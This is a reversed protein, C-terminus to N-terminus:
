FLDDVKQPFFLACGSFFRARGSFIQSFPGVKRQYPAGWITLGAMVTTNEINTTLLFVLLHDLAKIAFWRSTHRQKFLANQFINTVKVKSGMVKFIDDTYRFGYLTLFQCYTCTFRFCM